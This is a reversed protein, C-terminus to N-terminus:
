GGNTARRELGLLKAGHIQLVEQKLTILERARAIWRPLEVSTKLLTRARPLQERGFDVASKLRGYEPDKAIAPDSPKWGAATLREDLSRWRLDLDPTALSHEFWADAKLTVSSGAVAASRVAILRRCVSIDDVLAAISPLPGSVVVELQIKALLDKANVQWREGPKLRHDVPAIAEPVVSKVSSIQLARKAASERFCAEADDPTPLGPLGRALGSKVLTANVAGMATRTARESNLVELMAGVEKEAARALEAIPIPQEAADSNERPACATTLLAALATLKTVLRM